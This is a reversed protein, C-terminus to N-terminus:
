IDSMKIIKTGTKGFYKERTRLHTLDDPELYLSTCFIQFVHSTYGLLTFFVKVTYSVALEVDEMAIKVVM